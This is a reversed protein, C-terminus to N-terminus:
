PKRIIEVDGDSTFRSELGESVLIKGDSTVLVFDFEDSHERWFQEAKDAGMVYLATSLGDALTGNKSVITSSIIGSDAPYGTSPDLIHQYTKGDQVFYREYGGSTIVADSSVSVVGVYGSSDSPDKPERIAINWDTGDEKPRLTQVNGGLSVMATTLDYKQFIEMLRASTYGKAIGGLDIQTGKALTVHNGDITTKDSGVHTLLEDIESQEPVRYDQSPFGWAEMLPYVTIDFAGDTEESLEKAEQIMSVAEDSVDLEGAQNLKYIESDENQASLMKDLRQIESVAADAAKDADKGYTKIEMETDMAYIDRIAEKGKGHTKYWYLGAFAALFVGVLVAASIIRKKMPINM